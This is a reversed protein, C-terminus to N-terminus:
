VSVRGWSFTATGGSGVPLFSNIPSAPSVVYFTESGGVPIIYGEGTAHMDDNGNNKIEIYLAAASAADCRVVIAAADDVEVQTVNGSAATTTGTGSGTAM